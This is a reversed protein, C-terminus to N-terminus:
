ESASTDGASVAHGLHEFVRVALLALSSDNTALAKSALTNAWAMYPSLTPLHESVVSWADDPRQLRALYYARRLHMERTAGPFLCVNEYMRLAGAVDGRYAKL